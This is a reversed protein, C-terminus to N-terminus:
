LVLFVARRKVKGDSCPFKWDNLHKQLQFVVNGGRFITFAEQFLHALSVQFLLKRVM